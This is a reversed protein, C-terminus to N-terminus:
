KVPLLVTHWAGGHSRIDWLCRLQQPLIKNKRPYVADLSEAGSPFVKFPIELELGRQLSLSQPGTGGEPWAQNEGNGVLARGVFSRCM